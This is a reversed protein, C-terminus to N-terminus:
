SAYPAIIGALAFAVAAAWLARDQAIFLAILAFGAAISLLAVAVIWRYGLRRDAPRHYGLVRKRQDQSKTERNPM